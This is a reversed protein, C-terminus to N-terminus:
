LCALINSIKFIWQSKLTYHGWRFTIHSIQFHPPDNFIHHRMTSPTAWQQHPSENNIHHSMPTTTAWQHHPSENNIHHTMTSTTVWQQLPSENNIHHSVKTLSTSADWCRETYSVIFRPPPLTRQSSNYLRLASCFPLICSFSAIIFRAIGWTNFFTMNVCPCVFNVM